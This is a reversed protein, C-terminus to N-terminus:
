RGGQTQRALALAEERGPTNPVPSAYMFDFLDEIKPDSSKEAFDIASAFDGSSLAMQARMGYAMTPNSAKAASSTRALPGACGAVLTALAVASVATGFRPLRAM